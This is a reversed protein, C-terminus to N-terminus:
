LSKIDEPFTKPQDPLLKVDEFMLPQLSFRMLNPVPTSSRAELQTRIISYASSNHPSGVMLNTMQWVCLSIATLVGVVVLVWFPVDIGAQVYYVKHSIHLIGLRHEAYFNFGLLGMYEVVTATDNKMKELSIPTMGKYEVDMVYELTM